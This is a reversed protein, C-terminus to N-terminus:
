VLTWVASMVGVIAMVGMGTIADLNGVLSVSGSSSKSTSTSTSSSGTSLASPTFIAAANAFCSSAVASASVSASPNITANGAFNCSQSNRNTAEYYESMVYSLEISPDCGSVRGYVGTIGNSSIDNCSGGQQGLFSCTQDLLAGVIATDNTTQPTFRCSLNKEICSCAADNPTSPITDSVNFLATAPPCSPYTATGAASQAPSNIFSVKSYQQQLRDYDASTTVTSGDASITVM